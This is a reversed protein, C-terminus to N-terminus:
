APPDLRVAPDGLLTYNRADNAAIWLSTLEDPKTKLGHRHYRDLHSALTSAMGAYRSNFFELAHGVRRGDLISALTGAFVGRQPGANASVFSCEWAREVHGVFALTGGTPHSLLRQSLRSVFPRSALKRAKKRRLHGFEDFAPTGAGYCAFAFVIKPAGTAADSVDAASVYFEEPLSRKWAAPGPWDQCVLAGQADRQKPDDAAFGIGHTASFLLDTSRGGNLLECLTAKDAADGISAEVASGAKSKAEVEAALPELLHTASLETARDDPNRTGFLTLTTDRSGAAGEAAAVARAYRAYEAPTDFALRGVAYHVDLEYQFDFSIDAPGGVLLLYYPVKEPEADGPGMGHRGLWQDKSEDRQVGDAGTFVRFRAGAQDRRLSCLPELAALLEPPAAAGTVIGWGAEALDDAAM